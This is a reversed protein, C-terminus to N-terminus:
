FEREEKFVNDKWNDSIESLLNNEPYKSDFKSLAEDFNFNSELLDEIFLFPKDM